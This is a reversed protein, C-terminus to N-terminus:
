EHKEDDVGQAKRGNTEEVQNSELRRVFDLYRSASGSDRNGGTAANKTDEMSVIKRFTLRGRRNKKVFKDEGAKVAGDNRAELTRKATEDVRFEAPRLNEDAAAIKIDKMSSVEESVPRFDEWKEERIEAAPQKADPAVAKMDELSSSKLATTGNIEKSKEGTSEVAQPGQDDVETEASEAVSLRKEELARYKRNKKKSASAKKEMRKKMQVMARSKDGNELIDLREALMQRALKRNQQRSRTEQVKIVL